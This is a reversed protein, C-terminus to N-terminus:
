KKKELKKLETKHTTPIVDLMLLHKDLDYKISKTRKLDPKFLRPSDRMTKGDIMKLEQIETSEEIEEKRQSM